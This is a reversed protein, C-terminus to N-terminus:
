LLNRTRRKEGSYRKLTHLELLALKFVSGATLVILRDVVACSSSIIATWWTGLCCGLGAESCVEFRAEFCGEFGADFRVLAIISRLLCLPTRAGVLAAPRLVVRLSLVYGSWLLPLDLLGRLAELRRILSSRKWHSLWISRILSTFSTVKVSM